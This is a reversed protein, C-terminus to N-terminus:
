NARIFSEVWAATSRAWSDFSAQNRRLDIIRNRDAVDPDTGHVLANRFNRLLNFESARIENKASERQVQDDFFKPEIGSTEMQATVASEFLLVVARFSSGNELAEKAQHLQWESCRNFSESWSFLEELRPRFLAFLPDVSDQSRLLHLVERAGDVTAVVENMERKFQYRRLEDRIRDPVGACESLPLVDGTREFVALSEFWKSLRTLGDLRLVPVVPPDNNKGDRMDLAGYYIRTTQTGRLHRLLFSSLLQLMPLHRFGHTVDLILEDDPDVIGALVSLIDMQESETKGWPVLHCDFSVEFCDSLVKSLRKLRDADVGPADPKQLDYLEVALDAFQDLRGDSELWADWMSTSTGLVVIKDPELGSRVLHRFLALGFFKTPTEPAANDNFRYSATQYNGHVAQKNNSPPAGKGLTTVLIKM